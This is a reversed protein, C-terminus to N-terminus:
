GRLRRRLWRWWVRRERCRRGGQAAAGASTVVSLAGRRWGGGRSSANSRGRPRRRGRHFPLARSPKADRVVGEVVLLLRAPIRLASRPSLAGGHEAHTQTSVPAPGAGADHPPCGGADITALPRTPASPYLSSCLLPKGRGVIGAGEMSRM